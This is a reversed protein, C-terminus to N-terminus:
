VNFGMFENGSTDPKPKNNAEIMQGNESSENEKKAKKVKDEKKVKEAFGFYKKGFISVLSVILVILKAYKNEVSPFFELCVSDAQESLMETEDNNLKFDDHKLSISLSSGIFKFLVKFTAKLGSFSQENGVPPKENKKASKSPRGRGRKKKEGENIKNLGDNKINILENTKDIKIEEKNM